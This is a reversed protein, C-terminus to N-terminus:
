LTHKYTGYRVIESFRYVLFNEMRLYYHIIIRYLFLCGGILGNRFDAAKQVLGAIICHLLLYLGVVPLDLLINHFQYLVLQDAYLIVRFEFM